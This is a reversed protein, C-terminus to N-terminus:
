KTEKHHKRWKHLRPVDYLLFIISLPVFVPLLEVAGLIISVYDPLSKHYKSELDINACVMAGTGLWVSAFVMAIAGLTSVPLLIFFSIIAAVGLLACALALLWYHKKTTPKSYLLRRHGSTSDAAASYHGSTDRHQVFAANTGFPVLM